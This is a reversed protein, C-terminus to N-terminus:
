DARLDGEIQFVHAGNDRPHDAGGFTDYHILCAKVSQDSGRSWDLEASGPQNLSIKKSGSAPTSAEAWTGGAFAIAGRNRLLSVAGDGELTIDDPFQAKGPGFLIHYMNAKTQVLLASQGPVRTVSVLNPETEWADWVSLFPGDESRRVCLTQCAPHDKTVVANDVPFTELKYVQAGPMGPMTVRSTVGDVLWEASWNKDGGGISAADNGHYLWDAPDFPASEMAVSCTPPGGAHQVLWDKTAGGRVDFCDIVLDEVLAVSRRYVTTQPYIHDGRVEAFKMVSGSYFVAVEPVSGDKLAEGQPQTLKDVVVTTHSQTLTGLERTVDENYPTGKELALLKGRSYLTLGLRDAHQHGGGAKLANLGVWLRNGEWESRLSVWGSSLYSSTFPTDQHVIEPAGWLLGVWSRNKRLTEYDGVGRVDYYRYGVEATTTYSDMGSRATMSDGVVPMTRDPMAMSMFWELANKVTKGADNEASVCDYERAPFRQPDMQSLNHTLVSLECFAFMPYLHYGSCLEWYAGDPLFNKAAIRRLSRHEPAKEPTFEGYGLCWDVLDDRELCAGTQMITRYWQYVNNHDYTYIPELMVDDLMRKLADTEFRAREEAPMGERCLEYAVALDSLVKSDGERKYTLVRVSDGDKAHDTPSIRITNAFLGLLERSRALYADNKEVRGIVAMDSAAEAAQLYFLCIWGDYMTGNYIDGKPYIGADTDPAYTKGCATCEFKDPNLVEFKLRVRCDPCSFNHYVNGRRKPFVRQLDGPSANVWVSAGAKRADWVPRAWAQSELKQGVEDLTQSTVLGAPHQWAAAGMIVTIVVAVM